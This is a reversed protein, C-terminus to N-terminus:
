LSKSEEPSLYDQMSIGTFHALQEPLVDRLMLGTGDGPKGLLADLQMTLARLKTFHRMSRFHGTMHSFEQEERWDREHNNSFIISLSELNEACGHRELVRKVRTVDHQVPFFIDSSGNIIGELMEEPPAYNYTGQCDPGPALVSFTLSELRPLHLFLAFNTFKNTRATLTLYLLSLLYFLLIWPHTKVNIRTLRPLTNIELARAYKTTNASFEWILQEAAVALPKPKKVRPPAPERQAEPNSECKSDHGDELKSEEEESKEEEKNNFLREQGEKYEFERVWRAVELRWVMLEALVEVARELLGLIQMFLFSKIIDQALRLVLWLKFAKRRGLQRAKILYSERNRIPDRDDHDLGAM